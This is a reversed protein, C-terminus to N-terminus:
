GGGGGWGWDGSSRENPITFGFGGASNRKLGLSAVLTAAFAVRALDFRSIPRLEVSAAQGFSEVKGSLIEIGSRKWLALVQALDEELKLSSVLGITQDVLSHSDSQQLVAVRRIGNAQLFVGSPFDQPFVVWRNDFMGEKPTGKLRESDILFAPPANPPLHIAALQGAGDMLALTIPEVAIVSNPGRAANFLPVPRFGAAALVLGASVSEVGPFEVVLATGGMGTRWASLDPLEPQKEPSVGSFTYSSIEAAFLVPKVWPSWVSDEPAWIEFIQKRDM